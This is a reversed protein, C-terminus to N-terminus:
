SEDRGSSLHLLPIPQVSYSGIRSGLFVTGFYHQSMRLITSSQTPHATNFACPTMVVKAPTSGIKEPSPCAASLTGSPPRFATATSAAPLGTAPSKSLQMRARILADVPFSVTM